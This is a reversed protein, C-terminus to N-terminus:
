VGRTLLEELDSIRALARLGSPLNEYRLSRKMGRAVALWELLVALGASDCSSVGACDVLLPTGAAAARIAQAGEEAARRATAFTLSGQALIRGAADTSLRLAAGAAPAQAAASM